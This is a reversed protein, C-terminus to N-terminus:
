VHTHIKTWFRIYLETAGSLYQPLSRGGINSNPTRRLYLEVGGPLLRAAAVRCLGHLLSL